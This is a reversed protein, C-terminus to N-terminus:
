DDPYSPIRWDLIGSLYLPTQLALLHLIITRLQSFKLKHSLFVITTDSVFFVLFLEIESKLLTLYSFAGVKSRLHYKCLEYSRKFGSICARFLQHTQNISEPGMQPPNPCKYKLLEDRGRSKHSQPGFLPPHVVGAFNATCILLVCEM